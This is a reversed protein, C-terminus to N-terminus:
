VLMTIWGAVTTAGEITFATPTGVILSPRQAASAQFGAQTDDAISQARIQLATTAANGVLIWLDDGENVAQGSSVNITTSKQGTSNYTASVDAYGVVTLTPNGGLNPTGKALAVEGWTITAMATTVRLRIQVSSLARPAKGLYLAFSSGSTITKATTLNATAFHPAMMLSPQQGVLAAQMKRIGTAAIVNWGAGEQYELSEGAQLTVKRIIYETGNADFRVTLTIAATDNNYISLTDVVRQTSAGPAPVVNVATTNNTNTVTRGPTFTGDSKIDRWTSVCQAQNTAVSGGLVAELNDTTTDLILM